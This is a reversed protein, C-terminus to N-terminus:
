FDYDDDDYYTDEYKAELRDADCEECEYDLPNGHNGPWLVDVWYDYKADLRDADCEECVDDLPNGHECRPEGDDEEPDCYLHLNGDPGVDEPGVDRPLEDM